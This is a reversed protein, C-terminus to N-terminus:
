VPVPPVMQTKTHPPAESNVMGILKDDLNRKKELGEAKQSFSVKKTFLQKTLPTKKQIIVNKLDWGM